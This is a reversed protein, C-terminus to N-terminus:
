FKEKVMTAFGSRMLQSTLLELTSADDISGLRSETSIGEAAKSDAPEVVGESEPPGQCLPSVTWALRKILFIPSKGPRTRRTRCCESTFDSPSQTSSSSPEAPSIEVEKVRVEVPLTGSSHFISLSLPRTLAGEFPDTGILTAM